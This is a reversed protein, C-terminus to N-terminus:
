FSPRNRIKLMVSEQESQSNMLIMMMMILWAIAQSILQRELNLSNMTPSTQVERWEPFDEQAMLAARSGM